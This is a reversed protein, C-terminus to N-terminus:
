EVEEGAEVDLIEWDEALLDTQSALWPVVAGKPYAVHGVPYVIVLYPLPQPYDGPMEVVKMLEVHMGKGNWGARRCKHGDKLFDLATGFDQEILTGIM